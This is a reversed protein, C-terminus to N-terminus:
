GKGLEEKGPWIARKVLFLIRLVVELIILMWFFPVADEIINVMEELRQEIIAASFMTPEALYVGLLALPIMKAIDASIEEDYYACVRTAAVLSISIFMTEAISDTKSMFFLFLTLLVFWVFATLPFLIIYELVFTIRSVIQSFAGKGV